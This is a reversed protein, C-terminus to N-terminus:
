DGGGEYALHTHIAANGSHNGVPGSIPEITHCAPQPSPQGAEALARRAIARRQKTESRSLAIVMLGDYAQQWPTREDVPKAATEPAPPPERRKSATVDFRVFHFALADKGLVKEQQIRYKGTAVAHQRALSRLSLQGRTVKYTSDKEISPMIAIAQDDADVLLQVYETEEGLLMMAAKNLVLAGHRTLTASALSAKRSGVAPREFREFPM